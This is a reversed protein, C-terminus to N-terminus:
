GKKKGRFNHGDKKPPAVCVSVTLAACSIVEQSRVAADRGSHPPLSPLSRHNGSYAAPSGLGFHFLNLPLYVLANFVEANTCLCLVRRRSLEADVDVKLLSYKAEFSVWITKEGYASAGGM